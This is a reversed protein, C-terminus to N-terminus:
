IHKSLGLGNSKIVRILTIISYLGCSVAVVGLYLIKFANHINHVMAYIWTGIMLAYSGFM